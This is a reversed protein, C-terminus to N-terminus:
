SVLSHRFGQAVAGARDGVDLTRFLRRAHTKITDESLYLERGIRANSYGKAMGRLVQLERVTLDPRHGAGGDDTGGLDEGHAARGVSGLAHTVTLRDPHSTDWRLFGRAGALIAAAIGGVDHPAGFVIVNAEPHTALLCRVADVGAVGESGPGVLVLDGPKLFYRHGLAPKDTCDIRDVGPVQAMVRALEERVQRRDDCVLVATV